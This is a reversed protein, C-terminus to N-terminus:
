RFIYMNSRKILRFDYSNSIPEIKNKRLYELGNYKYLIKWAKFKEFIENIEKNEDSIYRKRDYDYIFDYIIENKEMDYLAYMNTDNQYHNLQNDFIMKACFIVELNYSAINGHGVCSRIYWSSDFNEFSYWFMGVSTISDRNEYACLSDLVKIEGDKKVLEEIEWFGILKFLPKDNQLKISDCTILFSLSLLLIYKM